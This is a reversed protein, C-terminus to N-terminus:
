YAVWSAGMVVSRHWYGEGTFASELGSNAVTGTVHIERGPALRYTIRAASRFTASV